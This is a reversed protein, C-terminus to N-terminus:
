ALNSLSHVQEKVNDLALEKLSAYDTFPLEIHHAEAWTLVSPISSDAIKPLAIVAAKTFHTAGYTIGVIVILFLGVALTKNRTFYLKNLVFISFFVALLLGGLHLWAVLVLTAALLLYSIRSPNTM